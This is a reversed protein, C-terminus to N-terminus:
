KKERITVAHQTLAYMRQACEACSPTLDGDPWSIQKTAPAGCADGSPPVVVRCGSTGGVSARIPARERLEEIRTLGVPNM